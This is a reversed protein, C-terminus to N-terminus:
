LDLCIPMTWGKPFTHRDTFTKQLTMELPLEPCGYPSELEKQIPFNSWHQPFYKVANLTWCAVGITYGGVEKCMVTGSACLSKTHILGVWSHRSGAPFSYHPASPLYCDVPPTETAGSVEIQWCIHTLVGKLRKVPPQVALAECRSSSLSASLIGRWEPSPLNQM